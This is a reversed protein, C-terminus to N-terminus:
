RNRALCLSLPIILDWMEGSICTNNFICLSSSPEICNNKILEDPIVTALNKGRMSKEILPESGKTGFALIKFSFFFFLRVLKISHHQHRFWNEKIKNKRGMYENLRLSLPSSHLHFVFINPLESFPEGKEARSTCHASACVQNSPRSRRILSM